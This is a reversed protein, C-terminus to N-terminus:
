WKLVANEIIGLVEVDVCDASVSLTDNLWETVLIAIMFQAQLMHGYVLIKSGWEYNMVPAEQTHWQLWSHKDSLSLM